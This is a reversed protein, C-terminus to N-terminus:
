PKRLTGLEGRAAAIVGRAVGEWSWRERVTAVLGERTEGAAGCPMWGAGWASRSHACPWTTSRSPCGRRSRRPCPARRAGRQGGGAGLPGRQRAARRLGRGRRRGDRLGRPLHEARGAGRVRAAARRAGRPRPPRDAPGASPCLGRRGGSVSASRARLATSSRSCTACAPRGARRLRGPARRGAARRGAGRATSRGGAAGARRGRHRSSGSWARGIPASASWWAPAGQPVRQSCWRGPAGAAPRRGQQRDAQRRLASWLDRGPELQAACRRRAEDRTSRASPAGGDAPPPRPARRPWGAARPAAAPERPAFREVDVGPPGLRTREPLRPDGLARWLSEATHRSGVLVTRARACGRAHSGLFREPEPKVTYELASGHVKVAYPVRGRAGPRPDRGMVLHNALAVEPACASPSRPRGGRREGCTARSSRKAATPSRTPRSARTATPWTVPLLGGIDPRYVTCSGGAGAAAGGAGLESCRLQGGDWDALRTSSRTTARPPAGPLAPPGRTRLGRWRRALRANYVNSGTGGLLYGHFILIRVASWGVRARGLRRGCAPETFDGATLTSVASDAQAVRARPRSSSTSASGSM